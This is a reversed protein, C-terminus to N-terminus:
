VVAHIAGILDAVFDISRAAQGFTMQNRASGRPRELRRYDGEHVIQNRRDVIANLQHKVRDPTTPPSMNSAIDRWSGSLGALALAKSVDDYRQFTERLLRDRLQRKVAVRPRTNHPPRRAAAKAQDAQELLASFPMSLAALGGPLEDHAFCREVILRHMYTDLAAVAMVTSLRRM